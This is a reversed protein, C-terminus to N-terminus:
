LTAVKYLVLLEAMEYNIARWELLDTYLTHDEPSVGDTKVKRELEELSGYQGQLRAEAKKLAIIRESVSVAIGKYILDEDSIPLVSTARELLLQARSALAM